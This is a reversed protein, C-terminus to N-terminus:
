SRIFLTYLGNLKEPYTKGEANLNRLPHIRIFLESKPMIIIIIIPTNSKAENRKSYKDALYEFFFYIKGRVNSASGDRNQVKWYRTM